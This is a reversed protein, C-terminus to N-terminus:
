LSRGDSSTAEAGSIALTDGEADSANALLDLTTVPSDESLTEVVAGSVVPADNSGQVTVTVTETSTGGNGDDVTYTFTDTATEDCGLHDFAGAPDYDFTGDGNNTVTGLTGTTDVSFTHTDSADVDSFDASVTIAPGDEDADAAVALAVPADNQGEITITVTETSTGGNGDDVTYTFTDTATEGAALSEFAGNPDYGFTGDGNNAVTGITGTTDVSFTHTDSADVDTFDASVTIAPGDEDATDSVAMAVPADNQGQITITVTETSTGGNGDDVTYTFTDTASEGVALSDFAVTPDYSFTGDGNNTVAGLTGTTDIAFSHSDNADIDSYDAAVVVPSDQTTTAAVALALPADNQGEITIEYTVTTTGGQGDSIVLTVTETASEGVGLSDYANGPDFSV